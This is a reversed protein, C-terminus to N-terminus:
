HILDREVSPVSDPEAAGIGGGVGRRGGGDAGGVESKYKAESIWNKWLYGRRMNGHKRRLTGSLLTLMM